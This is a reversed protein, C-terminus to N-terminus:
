SDDYASWLDNYERQIRELEDRMMHNADNLAIIITVTLALAFAMVYFLIMVIEM